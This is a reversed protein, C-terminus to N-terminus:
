IIINLQKKVRKPEEYEVGDNWSKKGNCYRVVITVDMEKRRGGRGREIVRDRRQGWEM